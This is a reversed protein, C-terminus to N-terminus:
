QWGEETTAEAKAAAPKRFGKKTTAEAPKALAADLESALQVTEKPITGNSQDLVEVAKTPLQVVNSKTQRGMAAEGDDDSAGLNVLAQLGYRRAYSIGSGYAQPDNQKTTLIETDSGYYEGSEHLLLTRVFSKGDKQIVPQLVAVKHKNLVPQCAERVSNLDAFSSKFFPNKSGKFASEMESQAAVLAAAVKNISQSMVMNNM